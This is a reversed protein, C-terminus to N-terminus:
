GKEDGRVREQRLQRGHCFRQGYEGKDHRGAEQERNREGERRDVRLM